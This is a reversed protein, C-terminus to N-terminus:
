WKFIIDFDNIKKKIKKLNLFKVDLIFNDFKKLGREQM